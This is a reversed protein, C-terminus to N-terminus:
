DNDLVEKLRYSIEQYAELKGNLKDVLGLPYDIEEFCMSIKEKLSEIILNCYDEISTIEKKLKENKSEEHQKSLELLFSYEKWEKKEKELTELREKIFGLWEKRERETLYEKNILREILKSTM